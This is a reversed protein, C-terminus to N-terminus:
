ATMAPPASTSALVPRSSAPAPAIRPARAPAQNTTPVATVANHGCTPVGPTGAPVDAVRITKSSSPINVPSPATIMNQAASTSPRAEAVAGGGQTPGSASVAVLLNGASSDQGGVHSSRRTGSSSSALRGPLHGQDGSGAPARAWHEGRGAPGQNGDQGGAGLPSGIDPM